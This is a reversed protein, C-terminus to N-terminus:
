ADKTRAANLADVWWKLQDLMTDAAQNLYDFEELKKGEQAVALYVPALIHVAHRIPAMQLEISIQRLQEIARAAGVSGYGVFAVPKQAWENYAYDLANKLASTPARNYEPTVVIFGDKEALKKQWALAAPDEIPGWAPSLAEAFIPMPYDKLDLVEVEFGERKEAIERIWQTPHDAFRNARVSSVILGIKSM